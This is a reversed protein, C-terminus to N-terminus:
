TNRRKKNARRKKEKELESLVETLSDSVFNSVREKAEELTENSDYMGVDSSYSYFPSADFEYKEIQVKAGLSATIRDRFGHKVDVEVQSIPKKSVARKKTPSRKRREM